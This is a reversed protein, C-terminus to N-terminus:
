PLSSAGCAVHLCEHTLLVQQVDLAMDLAEDYLKVSEPM